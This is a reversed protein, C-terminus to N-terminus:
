GVRQHSDIKGAVGSMFERLVPREKYKHQSLASSLVNKASAVRSGFENGANYVLHSLSSVSSKVLAKQGEPADKEHGPFDEHDEFWRAVYSDINGLASDEIPQFTWILYIM